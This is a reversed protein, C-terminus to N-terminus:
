KKDKDIEVEIGSKFIVKLMEDYVVIKGVLKRVLKEDYSDVELEQNDLFEELEMLRIQENKEEAMNLLIKEKENRLEEVRDALDTYDKKANAVKLLEEQVKLMEKDIEDIQSSGDGTISKEINEKIIEKLKSSESILQNIAEVVAEQLDEEKITRAECAEPGHTVRTCCRWVTYKKGRNNWAIRRYIDGCKSCYVISSLAYKSSYIRRKGKGSVMNARRDMEEGVRMFIEKPIIAEHSNEVYYQPAIGDNKVRKKNLFDVTYTKQLLADGMYKENTLIQNLNSVHWKKNGAGNVIKDKELGVKIDRLSAGELYERYIRKVIKAEEPVVVLKGEEDKTYGLFRNHNVQVQGQQFRYQFGLKVNQSLSQSEQQALSAMITLLVEGKADMTNINEKEFYVPINNEKLKRIYKLCDLTNRAFRSISKTIIYDINGEMAEEIMKNFGARKKTYTGSIGEDSFVGAFEWDPNRRIYNTYHDIQTDYSTAQEDSDTSVRAYAAVRLKKKESEKISNGKKKKAPIVIVKSNM